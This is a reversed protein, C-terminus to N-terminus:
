SEEGHFARDLDAIPGTLEPRFYRYRISNGRRWREGVRDVEGDKLMRRILGRISGEYVECEPLETVFRDALEPITLRDDALLELALRERADSTLRRWAAQRELHEAREDARRAELARSISNYATHVQIGTGPSSAVLLAHLADRADELLEVYEDDGVAV